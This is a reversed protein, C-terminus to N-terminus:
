PKERARWEIFAAAALLLSAVLDIAVVQELQSNIGDVSRAIVLFSLMSAFGAAIAVPRLRVRFAATILLGGLIGFLVARHRLLVTLNPDALEVGYLAELRSASLVGTIPALNVLGVVVLLGTTIKRM